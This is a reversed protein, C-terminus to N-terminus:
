LKTKNNWLIVPAKKGSHAYFCIKGNYRIKTNGAKTVKKDVIMNELVTSKGMGTKGVLYMHRRRDDTKIGFRRFRNRFTTEAFTTIQNDNDQPM